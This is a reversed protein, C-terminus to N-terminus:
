NAKEAFGGWVVKAKVSTSSMMKRMAHWLKM